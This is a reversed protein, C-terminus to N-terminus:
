ESVLDTKLRKKKIGIIRSTLSCRADAPTMCFNEKRRELKEEATSAKCKKERSPNLREKGEDVTFEFISNQTGVFYDNEM